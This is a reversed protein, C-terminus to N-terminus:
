QTAINIGGTREKTNFMAILLLDGKSAQVMAGEPMALHSTVAWGKDTLQDAYDPAAKDQISEVIINWTKKGDRQSRSVGKVVGAKFEPVEHPLDRPWGEEQFSVEGEGEETKFRFTGRTLDLDADKVGGREMAKEMAKEALREGASKGGCAIACAVCAAVLAGLGVVRVTHM